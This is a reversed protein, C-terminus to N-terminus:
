SGEAVTARQRAPRADWSWALAAHGTANVAGHDGWASIGAMLEWGLHNGRGLDVEWAMGGLVQHSRFALRSTSETSGDALIGHRLIVLPQTELRLRPGMGGREDLSGLLTADARLMLYAKLSEGDV